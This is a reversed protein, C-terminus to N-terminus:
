GSLSCKSALRARGSQQELISNRAFRLGLERKLLSPRAKVRGESYWVVAVNNQPLVALAGGRDASM